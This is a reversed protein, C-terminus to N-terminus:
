GISPEDPPSKDPGFLPRGDDEGGDEQDDEADRRAAAEGPLRHMSWVDTCPTPSGRGVLVYARFRRSFVIIAGASFFLVLLLVSLWLLTESWRRVERRGGAGDDM